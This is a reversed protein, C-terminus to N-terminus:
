ADVLASPDVRLCEVTRQQRQTGGPLEGAASAASGHCGAAESGVPRGCWVWTIPGSSLGGPSPAWLVGSPTLLARSPSRSRPRVRRQVRLALLAAARPRRRAAGDGARTWSGLVGSCLVVDGAGAGATEGRSPWGAPLLFDRWKRNDRPAGEPRGPACLHGTRLPGRPQQAGWELFASPPTLTKKRLFVGSNM